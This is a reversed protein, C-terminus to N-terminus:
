RASGKPPQVALETPAAATFSTLVGDLSQALNYLHQEIDQKRDILKKLRHFRAIAMGVEPLENVPCPKSWLHGNEDLGCLCYGGEFGMSSLLKGDIKKGTTVSELWGNILPGELYLDQIERQVQQLQGAWVLAHGELGQLVDLVRHPNARHQHRSVPVTKLKPLAPM